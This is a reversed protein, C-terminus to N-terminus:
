ATRFTSPSSCNALEIVGHYPILNRTTQQWVFGVQTRRYADLDAESLKLLDRGGVLVRGASPRDLGGLVNLLTSKGSGSAGVVGVMEGEEVALELGQLAVVEMGSLSYIKVLNECLIFPETM